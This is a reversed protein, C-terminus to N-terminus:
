YGARKMLDAGTTDLARALRVLTDTSAVNEGREIQGVYNLTLGSAEALQMQTIKASERLERVAIGLAKPLNRIDPRV